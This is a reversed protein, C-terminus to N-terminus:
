GEINLLRKKRREREELKNASTEDDREANSLDVVLEILVFIRIGVEFIGAVNVGRKEEKNKDWCLHSPHEHKGCKM